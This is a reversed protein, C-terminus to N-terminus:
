LVYYVDVNIIYYISFNRFIFLLRYRVFTLYTTKLQFSFVVIVCCSQTHQSEIINRNGACAVYLKFDKILLGIACLSFSWPQIYDSYIANIYFAKEFVLRGMHTICEYSGHALSSYCDYNADLLRNKSALQGPLTKNFNQFCSYFKLINIIHRKSWNIKREDFSHTFLQFFFFILIYFNDCEFLDYKLNIHM